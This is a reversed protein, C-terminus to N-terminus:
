LLDKLRERYGRSLKLKAGTSLRVEYEGHFLPRLEQIRDARVMTSRHIRVFDAGDLVGELRKISDRVLHSRSGAHIRVYSGAAEVWDVDAVPVFFIRGKKHIALRRLPPEPEPAPKEVEARRGDVLCALRECLEGSRRQRLQLLARELALNFREDEFPKLLYDLASVSFAELAYEEFATVFVVVPMNEPGVEEIVGFGDLDPMQIDLFLLDPKKDRLEEVASVGDGCEGVTEITDRGDLLGRIRRRALPEDDVILTRAVEM